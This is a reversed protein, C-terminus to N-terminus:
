AATGTTRPGADQGALAPSRALLVVGGVMVAGGLAALVLWGGTRVSEGLLLVGWLASVVPNALVVGPQSALLRGAGLARQLAVFALPAAPLLLYTQWTTLVAGAGGTALAEAMTKVLVAVFGSGAGAAVGLVAARTARRRSRGAAVVLVALLGLTAAAGLAWPLTGTALPRGGSPHLSVLLLVLGATLFAVAVGDARGLVGGLVWWGLLLTCPLTVVLVPQVLTLPGLSLATAQLAVSLGFVALGVRWVPRRAVERMPAAAGGSAAAADRAAKRQLVFATANAMATLLVLVVALPPADTM